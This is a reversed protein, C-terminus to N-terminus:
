AAAAACLAATLAEQEGGPMADLLAELAGLAGRRAAVGLPTMGDGDRALPAAGARLLARAADGRGKAAAHHLPTWGRGDPADVPAGAALLAAVIDASGGAAAASLPTEGARDSIRADAGARLLAAVADLHSFIIAHFLPTRGSEDTVNVDRGRAQAVLPACQPDSFRICCHWASGSCRVELAEKLDGIQGFAAAVFLPSHDVLVSPRRREAVRERAVLSLLAM